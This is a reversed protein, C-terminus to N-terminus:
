DLKTASAGYLMQKIKLDSGSPDRIFVFTIHGAMLYRGQLGGPINKDQEIEFDCEGTLGRCEVSWKKVNFASSELCVSKEFIQYVEDKGHYTVDGSQFVGNLRCNRQIVGDALTQKYSDKDQHIMQSLFRNMAECTSLCTSM